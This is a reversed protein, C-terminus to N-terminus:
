SPEAYFTNELRLEPDYGSCDCRHCPSSVTKATGEESLVVTRHLIKGHGCRCVFAEVWLDKEPSSDTAM